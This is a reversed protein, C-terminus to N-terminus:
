HTESGKGDFLNGNEFINGIVECAEGRLQITSLVNADYGSNPNYFYFQDPVNDLDFAPYKSDSFWKVPAVFSGGDEDEVLTVRLLDGEYIERGKKDHMGTYQGVTNKDVAIWFEPSIYDDSADVVKGIIYGDDYFGVAFNGDRTFNIDDLEDRDKCTPLGRFKIERM